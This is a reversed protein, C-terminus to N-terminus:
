RAVLAVADDARREAALVARVQELRPALAEVELEVLAGVQRQEAVAVQRAHHAADARHEALAAHVDGGGRDAPLRRAVVAAAVLDRHHDDRGVRRDGRSTTSSIARESPKRAPRATDSYHQRPDDPGRESPSGSWRM